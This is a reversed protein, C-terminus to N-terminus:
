IIRCRVNGRCIITFMVKCWLNDHEKHKSFQALVIINSPLNWLSSNNRHCSFSLAVVVDLKQNILKWFSIFNKIRVYKRIKTWPFVCSIDGQKVLLDYLIYSFLSTLNSFIIFHILSGIRYNSQSVYIM